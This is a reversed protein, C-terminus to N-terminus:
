DREDRNGREVQDLLEDLEIVDITDNSNSLFMLHKRIEGVVEKKVETEREAVPHLPCNQKEECIHLGNFKCRLSDFSHEKYSFECENCCKPMEDVYVKM